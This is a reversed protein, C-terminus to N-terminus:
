LNYKFKYKNGKIKIEKKNLNNNYLEQKQKIIWKSRFWEYLTEIFIKTYEKIIPNKSFNVFKEQQYPSNKRLYENPNKSIDKIFNPIIKKLPEFQKSFNPRTWEFSKGGYRPYIRKLYPKHNISTWSWYAAENVANLYKSSDFEVSDWYVKYVWNAYQKRANESIKMFDANNSASNFVAKSMWLIAAAANATKEKMNLYPLEYLKYLFNNLLQIWTETDKIWKFALAYRSNLKAVSTDEKIVKGILYARNVYDLWDSISFWANKFIKEYKSFVDLHNKKAHESIVDFIFDSNINLIDQNDVLIDREIQKWELDTLKRWLKKMNEVWINNRIQLLYLSLAVATPINYNIELNSLIKLLWKPNVDKLKAFDEIKLWDKALAEKLTSFIVLQEKTFKDELIWNKFINLNSFTNNWINYYLSKIINIQEQETIPTWKKWILQEINYDWKWLGLKWGHVLKRIEPDMLLRDKFQKAMEVILSYSWNSTSSWFVTNLLSSIFWKSKYSDFVIWQNLNNFLEEENTKWWILLLSSYNKWSISNYIDNSQILSNSRIYWSYYNDMVFKLSNMIDQKWEIAQMQYHDYLDRILRPFRFLRFLNKIEWYTTYKIQDMTTWWYQWATQWNKMRRELLMELAVLNNNFVKLFETFPIRENNDKEFKQIKLYLWFTYMFYYALMENYKFFDEIQKIWYKRNGYIINLIWSFLTSEKEIIVASKYYAWWMLYWITNSFFKAIFHLWPIDVYDELHSFLTDRYINSSSVVWWGSEAYNIAVKNKFIWLIEEWHNMIKERLQNATLWFNDLTKNIAVLKRLNELPYDWAWLPNTLIMHLNSTLENKKPYKIWFLQIIRTFLHDIISNDNLEKWISTWFMKIDESYLIDFEKMLEYAEILSSNNTRAYAKLELYNPIIQSIWSIIGNQTMISSALWYSLQYHFAKAWSLINDFLDPTKNFLTNVMVNIHWKDLWSNKLWKENLLKIFEEKNEIWYIKLALQWNSKHWELVDVILSQNNKWQWFYKDGISYKLELENLKFAVPDVVNKRYDELAKKLEEIKSMDFLTDKLWIKNFFTENIEVSKFWDIDYTIIEKDIANIIKDLNNVWNKKLIYSLWDTYPLIFFNNVHKIRENTADSIISDRNLFDRIISYISMYDPLYEDFLESVRLKVFNFSKIITTGFNNLIAESQRPDIKMLEIKNTPIDYIINEPISEVEINNSNIEVNDLNTEINNSKLEELKENIKLLKNSYEELKAEEMWIKNEIANNNFAYKKLENLNNEWLKIRNELNIKYEELDWKSLLFEDLDWKPKKLNIKYKNNIEDLKKEFKEDSYLVYNIKDIASFKNELKYDQRILADLIVLKYLNKNSYVEEIKEPSFLKNELEKTKKLNYSKLDDLYKKANDDLKLDEKLSDFEKKLKEIDSKPWKSTLFLKEDKWDWSLIERVKKFDKWKFINDRLFSLRDTNNLRNIIFWYKDVVYKFLFWKIWLIKWFEELQENWFKKLQENKKSKDYLKSVFKSDLKVSSYSKSQPNLYQTILYYIKVLEDIANDDLITDDYKEWNMKLEFQEIKKDINEYWLSKWVILLQWYKPFEEMDSKAFDLTLNQLLNYDYFFKENTKLDKFKEYFNQLSTSTETDIKQKNINKDFKIKINESETIKKNIKINKIKEVNEHKARIYQFLQDIIKLTRWWSNVIWVLNRVLLNNNRKKLINLEKNIKWNNINDVEQAIIYNNYFDNKSLFDEVLDINYYDLQKLQNDPFLLDFNDLYNKWEELTINRNIDWRLLDKAILQWLSNKKALSILYSHDWDHDWVFISYSVTPHTVVQNWWINMYEEKWFRWTDDLERITIKFVWINYRSPLPFRYCLAFLNKDVEKKLNEDLESYKKQYRKESLENRIKKVIPSKESLLIENEKLRNDSKKMFISQWEYNAENIIENVKDLFWKNKNSLFNTTWFWMKNKSVFWSIIKDYDSLNNLKYNPNILNDFYKNWEEDIKNKMIEIINELTDFHITNLIMSIPSDNHINQYDTTANKFFSTDTKQITEWNIIYKRGDIIVEKLPDNKTWEFKKYWWKLKLWWSWIIVSNKLDNNWAISIKDSINLLSKWLIRRNIWDINFMWTFHDKIQRILKIPAEKIKVKWDKEIYWIEEIISNQIEKPLTEFKDKDIFIWEVVQKWSWYWDAILRKIWLDLTIYSVWDELDTLYAKKINEKAQELTINKNKFIWTKWLEIIKENNLSFIKEETAKLNFIKEEKITWDVKLVYKTDYVINEKWFTKELIETDFVPELWYTHDIPDKANWMTNSISTLSSERKAITSISEINDKYKDLAEKFEDINHYKKSALEELMKDFTITTENKVFWNAYSYHYPFFLINAEKILNILDNKNESYFSLELKLPMKYLMLYSDKDWISWVFSYNNKYFDYIWFYDFLSKKNDTAFAYNKSQWKFVSYSILEKDVNNFLDQFEEYQYLVQKHLNNQLKLYKLKEEPLLKDIDANEYQKIDNIIQQQEKIKSVEKPYEQKYNDINNNIINELDQETKKYDKWNKIKLKNYLEFKYKSLLNNQQWEYSYFDKLDIWYDSSKDKILKKDFWKLVTFNAGFDIMSKLVDVEELTKDDNIKLYNTKITQWDIIVYEELKDYSIVRPMEKWLNDIKYNTAIKRDKISKLSKLLSTNYYLNSLLDNKLDKGKDTNIVIWNFINDFVEKYWKFFNEYNDFSKKDDNSLHYKVSINWNKSTSFSDISLWDVFEKFSKSKSYLEFWNKVKNTEDLKIWDQKYFYDIIRYTIEKNSWAENWNIFAKIWNVLLNDNRKLNSIIEEHDFIIKWSQFNKLEKILDDIIHYSEIEKKSILWDIINNMMINLNWKEKEKLLILESLLEEKWRNDLTGYSEVKALFEKLREKQEDPLITVNKIDKILAEVKEKETQYSKIDDFKKGNNMIFRTSLFKESKEEIFKKNLIISEKDLDPNQQKYLTQLTTKENKLKEIKDKVSFWKIWKEINNKEYEELDNISEDIIKIRNSLIEKYKEFEIKFKEKFSKALWQYKKDIISSTSVFKAIDDKLKPSLLIDSFIKEFRIDSLNKIAADILSKNNSYQYIINYLIPKAIISYSEDLWEFLQKIFDIIQQFEWPNKKNFKLEKQLFNELEQENIKWDKFLEDTNTASIITKAKAIWKKIDLIWDKYWYDFIINKLINVQSIMHSLNWEEQSSSKWEVYKLLDYNDLIKNWLTLYIAPILEDKKWEFYWYSLNFYSDSEIMMNYIDSAKAKYPSTTLKFKENIYVLDDSILDINDVKWLFWQMLTNLLEAYKWLYKEITEKDKWILFWIKTVWKWTILMSVINKIIESKIADWKIDKFNNDNKIENIFNDIEKKSHLYLRLNYKMDDLANINRVELSEWKKNVLTVKWDKKLDSLNKWQAEEFDDMYLRIRKDFAWNNLIMDVYERPKYNFAYKSRIVNLKNEIKNIWNKYDEITIDKNKIKDELDDIIEYAETKIKNYDNINAKIKNEDLKIWQSWETTFWSRYIKFKDKLQKIILQKKIILNTKESESVDNLSTRIIWISNIDKDIDSIWSLAKFRQLSIWKDTLLVDIWDKDMNKINESVFKYIWWKEITMKEFENPNFANKYINDVVNDLTKVIDSKNTQIWKSKLVTVVDEIAAKKDGNIFNYMIGNMTKSGTKLTSSLWKDLPIVDFFLNSIQNFSQITSTPAQVTQNDIIPDTGAWYIQSQLLFNWTKWAFKLASNNWIFKLVWTWYWIKIPITMIWEGLVKAWEEIWKTAIWLAKMSTALWLLADANYSFVSVAKKFNWEASYILNRTEQKVYHPVDDWWTDFWKDIARQVTSAAWSIANFYLMPDFFSKNAIEEWAKLQSVATIMWEKSRFKQKDEENLNQWTVSLAKNRIEVESLWKNEDLQKQDIYNKLFDINFKYVVKNVEKFSKAIEENQPLEKSWLISLEYEKDAQINDIIANKLDTFWSYDSIKNIWLQMIDKDVQEETLRRIEQIISFYENKNLDDEQQKKFKNYFDYWWVVNDNIYNKLEEEKQKILNSRNETEKQFLNFQDQIIKQQLPNLNLFEQNVFDQYDQQDTIKTVNRDSLYKIRLNNEFNRLQEFEQKNMLSETESWIKNIESSIDNIKKNFDKYSVWKKLNQELDDWVLYNKIWTFLWWWIDKVMEIPKIKNLREWLIREDQSFTEQTPKYLDEVDFLKNYSDVPHEIIDPLNSIVNKWVEYTWVVLDKAWWAVDKVTDLPNFVTNEVNDLIWKWISQAREFFVWSMWKKEDEISSAM